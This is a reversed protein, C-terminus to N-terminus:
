SIQSVFQQQDKTLKATFYILSNTINCCRIITQNSLNHLERFVDPSAKASHSGPLVADALVKKLQQVTKDHEEQPVSHLIVSQLRAMEITM